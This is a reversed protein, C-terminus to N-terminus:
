SAPVGVSVLSCGERWVLKDEEAELGFSVVRLRHPDQTWGVCRPSLSSGIQLKFGGPVLPASVPDWGAGYVRASVRSIDFLNVYYQSLEPSPDARERHEGLAKVKLPGLTRHFRVRNTVSANCGALVHGTRYDLKRRPTGTTARAHVEWGFICSIAFCAFRM